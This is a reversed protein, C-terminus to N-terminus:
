FIKHRSFNIDQVLIEFVVLIILLFKGTSKENRRTIM